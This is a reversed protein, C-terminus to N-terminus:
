EWGTTMRIKANQGSKHEAHDADPQQRSRKANPLGVQGRTDAVPHHTRKSHSHKRVQLRHFEGKKGFSFGACNLRPQRIVNTANGTNQAVCNRTQEAARNRHECRHNRHQQQTPLQGDNCQNNQRQHNQQLTSNTLHAGLNGALSM